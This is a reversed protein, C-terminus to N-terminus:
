GKVQEKKAIFNFITVLIALTGWVYLDKYASTAAIPFAILAAIISFIAAVRPLKFAFAGAFILFIAVLIGGAGAGALSEDAISGITSAACSQFMVIVAISLSIIGSAIRMNM